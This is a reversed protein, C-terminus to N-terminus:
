SRSLRLLRNIKVIFARNVDPFSPARADRRDNHRRTRVRRGAPVGLCPSLGTGM